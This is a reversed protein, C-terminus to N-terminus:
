QPLNECLWDLGEYLGEGTTACSGQVHWKHTILSPLDLADIVEHITMAGPLDQKNCFILIIANRLEVEDTIWKYLWEKVEPMRCRDNSDVVLCFGHTGQFYHRYLPRIKDGGGVDWCTFTVDKYSVEEVNFGITPITTVIEALKLRYLITTKGAADLGILLIRAKRAQGFLRRVFGLARASYSSATREVKTRGIHATLARWGTATETGAYKTKYLTSFRQRFVGEWLMDSSSTEYFASSVLALSCLASPSKTVLFSWACVLADYPLQLTGLGVTPSMSPTRKAEFVATHLWGCSIHTQASRCPLAQLVQPVPVNDCKPLGLQGHHNSGWVYLEGQSTLAVSHANNYGGGASVDRVYHPIGEVHMPITTSQVLPSLGLQGFSGSGWSYLKGEVSAALSHYDGCAIVSIPVSLRVPTPANRNLTDGTGLQGRDNRGWAVIGKLETTAVAHCGGCSVATLKVDCIVKAPLTVIQKEHASGIGLQGYTNHGTAYADGSELLFVSFLAGCSVAICKRPLPLLSPVM